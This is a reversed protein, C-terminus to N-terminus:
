YRVCTGWLTTSLNSNNKTVAQNFNLFSQNEEFQVARPPDSSFAGDRVLLNGSSDKEFVSSSLPRFNGLSTGSSGFGIELGRCNHWSLSSNWSCRQGVYVYEKTLNDLDFAREVRAEVRLPNEIDALLFECKINSNPSAGAFAFYPILLQAAVAFGFIMKRM